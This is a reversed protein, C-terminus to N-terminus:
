VLSVRTGKEYEELKKEFPICRGCKFNGCTVKGCLTCFGRIKGSGKVSIFHGNCHPCQRTEATEKGDIIIYGSAKHM